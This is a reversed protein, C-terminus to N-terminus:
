EKLTSLPVIIDAYKSWNTSSKLTNVMSDPVYIRGDKLGNPNYITDLTGTFHYCRTFTTSQLRLATTMNRIILKKLSYCNSFTYNLSCGSSNIGTFDVKTLSECYEFMDDMDTVKSANLQSISTLNECNYFMFRMNTVKSTNLSPISTLSTCNRFMYSMNTVQPTNLQSISTLNTCNYFMYSMDTVKPANLSPISTLNECNYFMYSMNTVQSINLSPISTLSICDSFMYSMNTVKSTNLVPISTLSTCIKFMEGMNTVNATELQPISPLKRCGSFMGFMNTVKSTNLLPISTLNICSGFMSSMNTVKSTNLLPISTLNDCNYFMSGMHTVNSTDDYSFIENLEDYTITSASFVNYMSKVCDLYKKLTSVGGILTGEVGLITKGKAINEPVLNSDVVQATEYLAVNTEETNRIEIKGQPQPLTGTVGNINVGFKINEPTINKDKYQYTNWGYASDAENIDIVAFFQEGNNISTTVDEETYKYMAEDVFMSDPLDDTSISVTNNTKLFIKGNQNNFNVYMYIVDNPYKKDSLEDQSISEFSVVIPYIKNDIGLLSCIELSLLTTMRLSPGNGLPVYFELKKFKEGFYTEYRLIWRNVNADIAFVTNPEITTSIPALVEKNGDMVLYMNDFANTYYFGMTSTPIDNETDVKFIPTPVTTGGFLTFFSDLPILYGDLVIYFEKGKDFGTYCKKSDLLSFDTPYSELTQFDVGSSIEKIKDAMNYPKILDTTKLKERIQTAIDSFISKLNKESPM